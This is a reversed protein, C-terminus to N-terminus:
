LLEHPTLKSKFDINRVIVNLLLQIDVVNGFHGIIFMNYRAKKIRNLLDYTRKKFMSALVCEGKITEEYSIINRNM